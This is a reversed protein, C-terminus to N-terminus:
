GLPLRFGVLAGSNPVNEAWVTGDHGEVIGRAIALGLGAGGTARSRAEEGRYFQEFIRSMDEPKFGTGSDQVTVIAHTDDRWSQVLVEGGDPTYRIANSLLNNIVRAIKPANLPISDLGIQVDGHLEIQRQSALAKFSELSDSIIDRLSHSSKEMVLGGADLQALEFLDDILMNLSIIDSRITKYYRQVDKEDEVVGDHLAEIMARISTLPTRLDHSTWAVLDRRMKDLEQREKEATELQGAMNNFVTGLRAVEDNGQIIVRQDFNGESIERAAVEVQGLGDKINASVFIGFTTSIIGAFLLLVGSLIFDHHSFYMQSLMVWVNVMVVIASWLYTLILTGNLSPFKAWGRRVLLYGIGLSLFSTGTLTMSLTVIENYSAQMLLRMLFIVVVIAFSTGILFLRWPLRAFQVPQEEQVSLNAM